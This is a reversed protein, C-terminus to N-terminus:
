ALLSCTEALIYEIILLSGKAAFDSDFFPRKVNWPDFGRCRAFHFRQFVPFFVAYRPVM